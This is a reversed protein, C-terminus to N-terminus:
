TNEVMSQMAAARVSESSDCRAREQVFSRVDSRDFWLKSQTLAVIAAARVSVAPDQAARDKLISILDRISGAPAPV